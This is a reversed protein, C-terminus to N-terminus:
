YLYRECLFVVIPVYEETDTACGNPGSIKEDGWNKTVAAFIADLRCLSGTASKRSSYGGALGGVVPDSGLETLDEDDDSDELRMNKVWKPFRTDGGSVRASLMVMLAM